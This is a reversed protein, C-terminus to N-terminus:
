SSPSEDDLRELLDSIHQSHEAGRDLEFTLEPVARLNGLDAALRRRLFGKARELAQVAEVRSAEDGLVSVGVHAHRLDGSMRVVSISAMAVRPDQVDRLLIEALRRRIADAVRDQRLSM